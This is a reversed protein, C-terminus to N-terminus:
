CLDVGWLVLWNNEWGLDVECTLVGICESWDGVCCCFFKMMCDNDSDEVFEEVDDGDDVVFGDTDGSADEVSVGMNDGVEAIRDVIDDLDIECIEEYANLDCKRDVRGSHACEEEYSFSDHDYENIDDEVNDDGDGKLKNNNNDEVINDM